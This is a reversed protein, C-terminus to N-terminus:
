PKLAVLVTAQEEPIITGSTATFSGPSSGIQYESMMFVFSGNFAANLGGSWGSGAAVATTNTADLGCAGILLDNSTSTTMPGSTCSTAAGTNSSVATVDQTCTGNAVEYLVGIIGASTGNVLFSVTDSGSSTITGCAVAVTDGDTALTASALMSGAGGKTHTFTVTASPIGAYLAAVLINGSTVSSTMAVSSVGGIGFSQSQVISPATGISQSFSRCGITYCQAVAMYPTFFLAVVLAVMLKRRM